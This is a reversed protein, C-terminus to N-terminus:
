KQRLLEIVPAVDPKIHRWLYFSEAAQGVLMGLGDALQERVVGQDAAYRLFPTLENDYVMDYVYTTPAFSSIPVPPLEGSLSASTGNIIVDFARDPVSNFDCASLQGFEAFEKILSRAKSQTRNVITINAPKQELLPLLVGRVAGGAGVILIDKDQLQWHLHDVIDSVMGVGDTNDGLVSRDQQLVLTNVAGAAKARPTLIRAYEFALQKFPVTINLGRGGEAFFSDVKQSFENIDVLTKDYEIDQASQKAFARHIEPSKSHEIPNGFVAYRDPKTSM